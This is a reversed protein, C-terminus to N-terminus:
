SMLSVSFDQLLNIVTSLGYFVKGWMGEILMGSFKCGESGWKFFAVRTWVGQKCLYSFSTWLVHKWWSILHFGCYIGLVRTKIGESSLVIGPVCHTNLLIKGFYTTITSSDSWFLEQNKLKGWMGPVGGHSRVEWGRDKLRPFPCVTPDDWCSQHLFCMNCEVKTTLATIKEGQSTSNEAPLPSRPEEASSPVQFRGSYDGRCGQGARHSM